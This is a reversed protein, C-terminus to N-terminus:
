HPHSTPYGTFNIATLM